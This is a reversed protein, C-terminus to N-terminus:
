EFAPKEAKVHRNIVIQGYRAVVDISKFGDEWMMTDFPFWTSGDNKYLAFQTRCYGFDQWKNKRFFYNNENAFGCFITGFKEAREITKRIQYKLQGPTLERTFLERWNRGDNFNLKDRSAVAPIGTIKEVNDDIWICWENRPMVQRCIFDRARSVGQIGPNEPLDSLVIQSPQVGMRELRVKALRTDCCFTPDWGYKNIVDLVRFRDRVAKTVIFCKM